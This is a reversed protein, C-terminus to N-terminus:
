KIYFNWHLFVQGECPSKNSESQTFSKDTQEPQQFQASPPKVASIRKGDCLSSGIDTEKRASPPRQELGERDPPQNDVEQAKM